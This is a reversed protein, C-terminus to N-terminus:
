CISTHFLYSKDWHAELLVSEVRIFHSNHYTYIIFISDFLLSLVLYLAPCVTAQKCIGHLVDVNSGQSEGAEYARMISEGVWAQTSTIIILYLSFQASDYYHFVVFFNLPCVWPIKARSTGPCKAVMDNIMIAEEPTALQRAVLDDIGAEKSGDKFLLAHSLLGWRLHTLLVKSKNPGGLYWNGYVAMSTIAGWLAGYPGMFMDYWRGYVNSIFLGMFFTIVAHMADELHEADRQLEGDSFNWGLAGSALSLLGLLAFQILIHKNNFLTGKLVMWGFRHLKNPVYLQNLTQDGSYNHTALFHRLDEEELNARRSAEKASPPSSPINATSTTQGGKMDRMSMQVPSSSSAGDGGFSASAGSAAAAIIIVNFVVLVLKM